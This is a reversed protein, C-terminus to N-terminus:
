LSFKVGIRSFNQPSGEERRVMDLALQGYVNINDLVPADFGIFFNFHKNSRDRNVSILPNYSGDYGAMLGIKPSSLLTNIFEDRHEFEILHYVLAASVGVQAELALSMYSYKGNKIFIDANFFRNYASAGVGIQGKVGGRSVIQYAMLSDTSPSRLEPLGSTAFQQWTLNKWHNNEEAFMEGYHAINELTTESDITQFSTNAHTAEVSLRAKFTFSEQMQAQAALSLLLSFLLITLTPLLTQIGREKTIHANM